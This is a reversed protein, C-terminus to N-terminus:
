RAGRDKSWPNLHGLNTLTAGPAPIVREVHRIMVVLPAHRDVIVPQQELLQDELARLGAQSPDRHETLALTVSPDEGVEVRPLNRAEPRHLDLNPHPVRAEDAMAALERGDHGVSTREQREGRLVAAERAPEPGEDIATRDHSARSGRETDRRFGDGDGLFELLTAHFEDAGGDDVGQELGDTNIILM